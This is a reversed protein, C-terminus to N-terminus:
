AAQLDFVLDYIPGVVSVVVWLMIVGVLVILCPGLAQELRDIADRAERDYFYSIQRFANDLAGTMEGVGVMSVVLPTFQGTDRLADTVSVGEFVRKRATLLDSGIVRCNVVGAGLKLAEPLGIGAGYMLAACRSFRAIKVRYLVAGLLPLRLLLRDKITHLIPFRALLLPTALAVAVSILLLWVWSAAILDSTGILLQTHWPIASGTSTVFSILSPVLFTMVFVIVSFLVVAVFAPYIMAKRLGAATEDQWKLLDALEGLLESLRGSTEGIEVLSCYLADFVDPQQRCADSFCLGADISERLSEITTVLSPSASAQRLDDLAQLLPVGAALLQQIHFTFALLDSRTVKRNAAFSARWHRRCSLLSLRRHALRTKLDANSSAALTGSVISGSQDLARYQFYRM